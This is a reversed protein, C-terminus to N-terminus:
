GSPEDGGVLSLIPDSGGAAEGAHGEQDEGGGESDVGPSGGGDGHGVPESRGSDGDSPDHLEDSSADETEKMKVMDQAWAHELSFLEDGIHKIQKSLDHDVHVSIGAERVLRCFYVDEGIQKGQKPLWEYWWWPQEKPDPLAEFVERRILMVGFGLAECEAVGEDSPLTKLQVGDEGTEIDAVTEVGIYRIPYQRSVYNCGVMPLNRALLRALTDPPFRMDSDLFLIYDAGKSLAAHALAMRAKHVYTGVQLALGLQEIVGRSSYRASTYSMMQALDYAFYAKVDSQCPCAVMVKIGRQPVDGAAKVLKKIHKAQARRQKRNVPRRWLSLNQRAAHAM